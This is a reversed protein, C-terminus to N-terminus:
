SEAFEGKSYQLDFGGDILACAREAVLLLFRDGSLQM